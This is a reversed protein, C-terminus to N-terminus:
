IESPSSRSNRRHPLKVGAWWISWANWHPQRNSLDRGVTGKGDHGGVARIATRAAGNAELQAFQNRREVAEWIVGSSRRGADHAHHVSIAMAPEQRAPDAVCNVARPASCVVIPQTEMGSGPGGASGPSQGGPAQGPGQDAPRSRNRREPAGIPRERLHRSEPGAGIVAGPPVTQSVAEAGYM